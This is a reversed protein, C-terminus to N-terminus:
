VECANRLSFYEFWPSSASLELLTCQARPEPSPARARARPEPSVGHMPSGYRLERGGSRGRERRSLRGRPASQLGGNPGCGIYHDSQSHKQEQFFLIAGATRPDSPEGRRRCSGLGCVPCGPRQRSIHATSGVLEPTLPLLVLLPGRYAGVSPHLSSFPIRWQITSYM